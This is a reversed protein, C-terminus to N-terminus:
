TPREVWEAPKDATFTQFYREGSAHLRPPTKSM